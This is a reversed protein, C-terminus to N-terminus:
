HLWSQPKILMVEDNMPSYALYITKNIYKMYIPSYLPEGKYTSQRVYRRGNYEFEVEIAAAKCMVIGRFLMREGKSLANAKLVVADQLFADVKKKGVRFYKHLCLVVIFILVGFVGGVIIVILSDSDFKGLTLPIGILMFLVIAVMIGLIAYMSIFFWKWVKSGFIHGIKLTADIDESKLNASM